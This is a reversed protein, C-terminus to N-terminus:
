SPFLLFCNLCRCDNFGLVSIVSLPPVTYPIPLLHPWLGLSWRRRLEWYRFPSIVTFFTITIIETTKTIIIAKITAKENFYQDVYVTGNETVTYSGDESPIM